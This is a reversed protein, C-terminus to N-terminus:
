PYLDNITKLFDEALRYLQRNDLSETDQSGPPLNVSALRGASALSPVAHNSEYIVQISTTQGNHTFTETIIDAAKQIKELATRNNVTVYGDVQETDALFHGTIEISEGNEQFGLRLDVTGEGAEGRRFTVRMTGPIGGFEIPLYYEEQHQLISMLQLQKHFLQLERVDLSTMQESLARDATEEEARNLMAAYNESFADKDGITEWISGGERGQASPNGPIDTGADRDTRQISDRVTQEIGMMRKAWKGDAHLLAKAALLNAAHMPVERRQLLSISDADAAAERLESLRQGNYQRYSEQDERSDHTFPLPEGAGEFATQIQNAINRDGGSIAEKMAGVSADVIQNVRGHKTRLATLLNQFSPEAQLNVLAGIPAGDSQELRHVLRYIGIYSAREKETIDHHQELRYLFRAYDESKETFSPTQERFYTDLEVLSNEMPNIGKRILDLTAAPTLEKIIRAVLADTEKVAELNAQTIEMQNYGLIRVGRQNEPTLPFELEQLIHDVNAFARQITDGMDRRPATGLAEYTKGAKEYTSKQNKGEICFADLSAREFSDRMGILKAPYTPLAAIEERAGKYLRYKDVSQKDEPFYTDAVEQEAQKLAQILEEMPATDIAFGSRLLKVNVEASMYLRVEELVRRAALQKPLDAAKRYIGLSGEALRIPELNGRLAAKGEGIATAASLIAQEKTIPFSVSTLRDLRDVNDGTMPLDQRILWAAQEMHESFMPDSESYGYDALISHIQDEMGEWHGVGQQLVYGGAEQVYYTSPPKVTIDGVTKATNTKKSAMDTKTIVSDAVSDTRKLDGTGSAVGIVSNAALYYSGIEPEMGEKVMFRYEKDTPQKLGAAMEAAQLVEKTNEKTVPIDAEQFSNILEAALTQSGLAKVLTEKDIDDTYGAIQQGSLAVETKIKDIITVTEKPNMEEIPFGEESLRAYDEESLTHSMLTMYDQRLGVDQPQMQKGMDGQTLLTNNEKQGNSDKHVFFSPNQGFDVQYASLQKHSSSMAITENKLTKTQVAKAEQQGFTIKM